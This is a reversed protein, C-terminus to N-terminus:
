IATAALILDVVETFVANRKKGCTGTLESGPLTLTYTPTDAPCTSKDTSTAILPDAVLETLEALQNPSMKGNKATGSKPTFSWTGDATIVVTGPGNPAGNPLNQDSRTLAVFDTGDPDAPGPRGPDGAGPAGSSSDAGPSPIESSSSPAPAAGNDVTAPKSCAALIAVSAAATLIITGFRTYKDSV